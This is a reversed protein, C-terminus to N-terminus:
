KPQSGNLQQIFENADDITDYAGIIKELTNGQSIMGKAGGTLNILDYITEGNKGTFQGVLAKIPMSEKETYEDPNRLKNLGGMVQDASTWYIAYAIATGFGATGSEALISGAIGVGGIFVDKLGSLETQTRQREYAQAIGLNTGDYAYSPVTGDQFTDITLTGRYIGNFGTNNSQPDVGLTYAQKNSKWQEDPACAAMM